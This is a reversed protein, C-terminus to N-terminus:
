GLLQRLECDNVQKRMRRALKALGSSPSYRL